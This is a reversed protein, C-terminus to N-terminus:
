RVRAEFSNKAKARVAAVRSMDVEVVTTLQASVQLSEVMREAIVKRLRTLKETRGRLESVPAVAPAPAPAAPASASPASASAAQDARQAVLAEIDSKRIRGGVGTGTVSALDIGNQSALRRV